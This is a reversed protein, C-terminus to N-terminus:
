FFYISGCKQERDSITFSPRGALSQTRPSEDLEDSESYDQSCNLVIIKSQNVINMIKPNFFTRDKCDAINTVSYDHSPTFSLPSCYHTNVPNSPMASFSQPVASSSTSTTTSNFEMITNKNSINHNGRSPNDSKSVLLPLSVSAKKLPNSMKEGLLGPCSISSNVKLETTDEALSLSPEPAGINCITFESDFTTEEFLVNEMTPMSINFISSSYSDFSASNALTTFRHVYRDKKYCALPNNLL